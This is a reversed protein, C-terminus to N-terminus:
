DWGESLLRIDQENIRLLKQNEEVVVEYDRECRMVTHEINRVRIDMMVIKIGLMVIILTMLAIVFDRMKM